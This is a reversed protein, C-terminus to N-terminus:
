GHRKPTAGCRSAAAHGKRAREIARLNHKRRCKRLSDRKKKGPKCRWEVEPSIFDWLLGGSEMVEFDDQDIAQWEDWRSFDIDDEEEKEEEDVGEEEVEGAADM